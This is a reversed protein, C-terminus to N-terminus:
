VDAPSISFTIIVARISGGFRKPITFILLQQNDKSWIYDDIKMPAAGPTAMLKAASVLVTRKGSATDYEVIDEGGSVATSPEVTTYRVGEDIWRAPGFRKADYEHQNFIANLTTSLQQAHLCGACCVLIWGIYFLYQACLKNKM